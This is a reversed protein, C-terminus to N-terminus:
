FFAPCYRTFSFILCDWSRTLLLEMEPYKDWLFLSSIYWFVYILIHKGAFEFYSCVLFLKFRGGVTSHIFQSITMCHYVVCCFFLGSSYIYCYVCFRFSSSLLMCIKYNWNYLALFQSFQTTCLHVNLLCFWSFFFFHIDFTLMNVPLLVCSVRKQCALFTRNRPRHTTYM